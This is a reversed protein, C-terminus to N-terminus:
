PFSLCSTIDQRALVQLAQPLVRAQLKTARVSAASREYGQLSHRPCACAVASRQRNGTTACFSLLFFFATSCSAISGSHHLIILEVAEYYAKSQSHSFARMDTLLELCQVHQIMLKFYKACQLYVCCRERVNCESARRVLTWGEGKLMVRMEVVTLDSGDCGTSVSEPEKLHVISSTSLASLQYTGNDRKILLGHKQM